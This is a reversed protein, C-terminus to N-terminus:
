IKVWILKDENALHHCIGQKDQIQYVSILPNSSLNLRGAESITKKVRDFGNSYQDNAIDIVGFYIEEKLDSFCTNGLPLRDRSFQELADAWYFTTRQRNFHDKIETHAEVDSESTIPIGLHEEYAKFLQEVYRIEKTDIASPPPQPNMRRTLGGGFRPAYYNTQKLQEIFEQPDISSFMSFDIKEIHAKLELSLPIEKKSIILDKCKGDWEKFLEKKFLEPNDLFEALSPGVGHPSVFYYKAPLSFDNVFTYYCLKGIEIWIQSPMLGTSYHKCQYNDWKNKDMFAVVDRGKDGSGSARRVKSYKKKCYGAIWERVIDEFESDHVVRLKDIAPMPAGLLIEANTLLGVSKPEEAEILEDM